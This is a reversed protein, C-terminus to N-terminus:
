PEDRLLKARQAAQETQIEDLTLAGADRDEKTPKIGLKDELLARLAKRDLEELQQRAAVDDALQQQRSPILEWRKSKINWEHFEDPAPPQYDVIQQTAIDVRQSEWDSVDDRVGFGDPINMALDQTNRSRLSRGCFVGTTLDYVHWVKM